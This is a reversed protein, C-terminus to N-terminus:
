GGTSQNEWRYFPHSWSVWYIMIIPPCHGIPGLKWRLSSSGQLYFAIIIKKREQSGWLMHLEQLWPDSGLWLQSRYWQKPLTPDELWQALGLILGADGWVSGIVKHWLLFELLCDQSHTNSFTCMTSLQPKKNTQKTKNKWFQFDSSLSYWLEYDYNENVLIDM